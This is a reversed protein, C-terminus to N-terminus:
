KTGYDRRENYSCTNRDIWELFDATVVFGGNRKGKIYRLPLPDEKRRAYELVTAPNTGLQAAVERTPMTIPYDM